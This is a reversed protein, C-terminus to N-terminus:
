MFETVTVSYIPPLKDTIMEWSEGRDNSAFLEGSMTGVYVGCPEQKDACLAHRLVKFRAEPGRPLGRTLTEWHEGANETRYVAFQEGLSYREEPDLVVTFLTEPHHMDLALPFGFFSPLNGLISRWSEGGDLSKFIGNRSQQYLTNAQTPHQLLRHSNRGVEPDDRRESKGMENLTQWSAGDDDSRLTGAGSISVWMRKKDSYDPIISHLCTGTLGAGWESREPYSQMAENVEWHEGADGSKWLCAPDTGAYIMGPEEVRGPEIYWIEKLSFGSSQAFQIPTKPEQWRQGFDDSYYLYADKEGNEAVFLRYKNRPDFVAYYIRSAPRVELRTKEIQWHRRDASSILFLGQRTGALLLISGTKYASSLIGM